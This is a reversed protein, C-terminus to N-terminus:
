TVFAGSGTDYALLLRTYSCKYNDTSTYVVFPSDKIHKLPYL